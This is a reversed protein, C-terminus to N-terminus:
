FPINCRVDCEHGRLTVFETLKRIDFVKVAGDKAGTALWNGNASWSCCTVTKKHAYLTALSSQQRPDWLKITADKSGTVFLSRYSHWEVCKVEALHELYTKEPDKGEL